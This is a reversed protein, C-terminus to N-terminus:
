RSGSSRLTSARGRRSAPPSGPSWATRGRAGCRGAAAPGAWGSAAGAGGRVGTRGATRRARATPAPGHSGTVARAMPWARRGPATANRWTDMMAGRVRRGGDPRVRIRGTAVGPDFRPDERYGRRARRLVSTAHVCGRYFWLVLGLRLRQAPGDVVPHQSSDGGADGAVEAHVHRHHPDDEGDEGDHAARADGEIEGAPQEDGFLAGILRQRALEDLGQGAPGALPPLRCALACGGTPM